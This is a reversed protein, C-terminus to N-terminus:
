KKKFTAPFYDKMNPYYHDILKVLQGSEGLEHLFTNFSELLLPSDKSIGFGMDQNETITGLIKLKGPYNMLAVLSDPVDLITLEYQGKVVAPALDNLGGGQLFIPRIDQLNYLAPDVCTNPIGLVTKGKLLDKSAQVDKHVDGTAHIPKLDSDARAVIWIATPIYPKSFNIAKQRWPILTLGNGIIDGNVPADGSVVIDDGKPQIKKGALSPIVTDWSERIYEYNVGIKNAYLKIIAADLGDGDGTVFNAYPVGLHRIVGRQKIEPLDAWAFSFLTLVSVMLIVTIKIM